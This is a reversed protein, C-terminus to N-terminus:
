ETIISESELCLQNASVHYWQAICFHNRGFLIHQMRNHNWIACNDINYILSKKDDLNYSLNKCCIQIQERWIMISEGNSFM